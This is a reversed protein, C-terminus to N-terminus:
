SKPNINKFPLALCLIKSSFSQFSLKIALILNKLILIFIFIEFFLMNCLIKLQKVAIM